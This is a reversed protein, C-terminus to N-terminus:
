IYLIIVSIIHYINNYIPYYINSIYIIYLITFLSLLDFIFLVSFDAKFHNHKSILVIIYVLM